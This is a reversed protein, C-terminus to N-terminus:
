PRTEGQSAIASPSVASNIVLALTTDDGSGAASACQEAWNPLQDTFWDPGHDMGFRALDAAFGPQWLDERQANGFGDTALLAAYLPCTDLSVIGIRFADAAGVQCLSTTHLGDLASDDPVPNVSRGDPQITVVTGDGIQAFAARGDAFVGLLLTSGYATQPPLALDALLAHDAPSFEDKALDAAVAANWSAVVQPVLVRRASDETTNGRVDAVWDLTAAIGSAVALAAGRDSRFHRADGHGDAVAVVLLASGDSLVSQRWGVADENPQGSRAHAAGIASATSVQWQPIPMLAGDTAASGETVM